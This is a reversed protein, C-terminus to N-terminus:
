LIENITINKDALVKNLDDICKNAQERNVKIAKM